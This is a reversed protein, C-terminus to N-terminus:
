QSTLSKMYRHEKYVAKILRKSSNGDSYQNWENSFTEIQEMNYNGAKLVDILDDTNEVIQGPVLKDYNDWFGRADAYEDIDYAFFVMPKNLLSFEFPISSYDTILIDTILLLHNINYENSVNYVFDPYTNKVEVTVAPHLRLFLVHDERLRSYMNKIDLKLDSVNLENDRYTPAYRIVKKENIIPFLIELTNGVEEKTLADFFFDTRPVGTRLIQQDSIGFGEKFITAMKESGVVVHDFRQYVQKFREYAKASRNEISLDRLGFQKIAGAAHWLQICETNPKFVTVALFGYYNDVFIKHCTALHYISKVWDVPNISTFSLQKRNPADKFTIKCNSTKLMVVQEETQKELEKLTYLINDGFSAVFVTKKKQPFLKFSNFLLRFIFLYITVALERAM